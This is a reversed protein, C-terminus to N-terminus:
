MFFYTWGLNFSTLNIVTDRFRTPIKVYNSELEIFFDKSGTYIFQLMYSQTTNSYYQMTPSNSSIMFAAGVGFPISTTVGLDYNLSGGFSYSFKNEISDINIVEGYGGDIFALISWKSSPTYAFRLDVKGTLPNFSKVLQNNQVYANSDLINKLFEYINLQTSSSSQIKISSSIMSKKFEIIKFLMGSEFNTNATVGSVFISATNTGIRAIGGLKIWIAAWDKVAYDFEFYGNVYTIDATVEKSSLTDGFRLLPIETSLSNAFGLNSQIKSKIFPNPILSNTIFKHGNLMPLKLDKINQTQAIINIDACILIVFSLIFNYYYKKM